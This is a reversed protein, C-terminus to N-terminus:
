FLKDSFLLLAEIVIIFTHFCCIGVTTKLFLELTQIPISVYCIVSHSDM